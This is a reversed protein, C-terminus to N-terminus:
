QLQESVESLVIRIYEPKLIRIKGNAPKETPNQIKNTLLILWWLETTNYANYSVTTWPMAEPVITEYFYSDDLQAAFDIKKTINFFFQNNKTKYVKFINEYRFEGLEPLENVNNQYSGLDTM